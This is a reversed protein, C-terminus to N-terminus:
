RRTLKTLDHDWHLAGNLPRPHIAEGGKKLMLRVRQSRLAVSTFVLLDDEATKVIRSYRSLSLQCDLIVRLLRRRRPRGSRDSLFPDDVQITGIGTLLADSAHRM